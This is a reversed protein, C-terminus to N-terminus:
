SQALINRVSASAIAPMHVGEDGWPICWSQALINRVSASAVAPM